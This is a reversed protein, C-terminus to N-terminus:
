FFYRLKTKNGCPLYLMEGANLECAVRVASALKPFKKLVKKKSSSSSNFSKLSEVDIRSFSMPESEQDQEIKSAKGIKRPNDIPPGNDGDDEDESFDEEEDEYDCLKDM